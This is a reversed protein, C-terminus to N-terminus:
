RRRFLRARKDLGSAILKEESLYLKGDETMQIIEAKMLANLAYPKYDRRRGFKELMGRPQLGLEDVTKADKIDIANHARFIRIVQPIARMMLWQPVFIIAAIAIIILLIIVLVDNM